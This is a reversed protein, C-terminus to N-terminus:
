ETSSGNLTNLYRQKTLLDFTKKEIFYSKLFFLKLNCKVFLIFTSYQYNTSPYNSAQGKLLTHFCNFSLCIPYFWHVEM